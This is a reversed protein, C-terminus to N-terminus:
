ILASNRPITPAILTAYDDTDDRSGSKRVFVSRYEYRRTVLICNYPRIAFCLRGFLHDNKAYSTNM